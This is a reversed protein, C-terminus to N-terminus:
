GADRHDTEGRKWYGSVDLRATRDQEKLWSRIAAVEGSEAAVFVACGPTLDVGRLADALGYYDSAERHLWRIDVEARSQVPQRCTKDAVESLVVAGVGAPLAELIAAIAPFGTEDGVLVYRSISPDIAFGSRSHPASVEFRDGAEARDAWASVHGEDGHLVFDIDISGDEDRLRRVTYARGPLRRGEGNRVFVKLWQGPLDARLGPVAQARVTLRKLHPAVLAARTVEAGYLAYPPTADTASM